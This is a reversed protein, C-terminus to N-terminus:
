CRRSCSASSTDATRHYQSRADLTIISYQRLSHQCHHLPPTTTQSHHPIPSSPSLTSADPWETDDRGPVAGGVELSFGGNGFLGPGALAGSQASKRVNVQCRGCVKIEEAIKSVGTSKQAQAVKKDKRTASMM